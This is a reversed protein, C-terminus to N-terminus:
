LRASGLSLNLTWRNDAGSFISVVYHLSASGKQRLQRVAVSSLVGVVLLWVLSIISIKVIWM